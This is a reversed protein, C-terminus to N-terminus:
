MSNSVLRGNIYSPIDHSKNCFPLADDSLHCSQSYLYDNNSYLNMYQIVNPNNWDWQYYNDVFNEKNDRM